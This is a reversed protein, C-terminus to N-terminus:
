YQKLKEKIAKGLANYFRESVQDKQEELVISAKEFTAKAMSPDHLEEYCLALNFYSATNKNGHDFSALLMEKAASYNGQQRFDDAVFNLYQGNVPHTFGFREEKEQYFSEMQEGISLTKNQAFGELISQDAFYNRSIAILGNQLSPIVCSWHDAKEFREYKWVLSENPYKQIISDVQLVDWISEQERFGIDGTSVYCYKKFVQKEALMKAAQDFIIGGLAGLSPSIGLYADFLDRNPGFLTNGVFAGGWSHGVIIRFNETRFQKEIFPFVEKQLHERLESSNPNFESGRDESVIGVAIMPLVLRQRVMYGINGKAMDWLEPSQADLIYTVVFNSTTDKSYSEPLYVKIKRAGGFADSQLTFELSQSEQAPLLLHSLVLFLTFTLHKLAKM